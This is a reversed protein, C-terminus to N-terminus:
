VGAMARVVQKNRSPLADHLRRIQKHLLSSHKGRPLWAPVFCTDTKRSYGSALNVGTCMLGFAVKLSVSSM